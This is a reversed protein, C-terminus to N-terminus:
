NLHSTVCFSYSKNKKTMTIIICIDAGIEVYVNM